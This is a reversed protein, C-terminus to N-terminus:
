TILIVSLLPQVTSDGIIVTEGITGGVAVFVITSTIQLPSLVPTTVMFGVAPCAGNWTLKLENPNLM